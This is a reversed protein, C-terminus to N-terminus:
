SLTKIWAIHMTDHLQNTSTLCGDRDIPFHTGIKTVFSTNSLSIWDRGQQKIKYSIGKISDKDASPLRSVDLPYHWVQDWSPEGVQLVGVVGHNKDLVGWFAQDVEFKDKEAKFEKRAHLDVKM